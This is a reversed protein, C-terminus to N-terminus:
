LLIFIDADLFQKEGVCAEQEDEEWGDRCDKCDKNTAGTCTTCSSHCETSLVVLERNLTSDGTNIECM